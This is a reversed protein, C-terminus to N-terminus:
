ILKLIEDSILSPLWAIRWWLYDVSNDLFPSQKTLPYKKRILRLLQQNNKIKRPLLLPDIKGRQGKQRRYELFKLKPILYNFEGLDNIKGNQLPLNYTQIHDNKLDVISELDCCARIFLGIHCWIIKLIVNSETRGVYVNIRYKYTVIHDINDPISEYHHIYKSSMAYPLSLNKGIKYCGEGLSKPIIFEDDKLRKKALIMTEEKSLLIKIWNM